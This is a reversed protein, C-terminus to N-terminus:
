KLMDDLAGTSLVVVAALLILSIIVISLIASLQFYLKLSKWGGAMSENDGTQLSHNVKTSFQLLFIASLVGIAASIITFTDQGQNLTQMGSGSFIGAPIKEKGLLAVVVSIGNAIMSVIAIVKTWSVITVLHTKAALDFQLDFIEPESKVNEMEM